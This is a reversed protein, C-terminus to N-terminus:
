YNLLKVAFLMLHILLFLLTDRITDDAVVLWNYSRDIASLLIGGYLNSGLKRDAYDISEGEHFFKAKVSDIYAKCELIRQISELLTMSMVWSHAIGILDVPVSVIESEALHM